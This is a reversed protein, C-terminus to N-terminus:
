ERKNNRKRIEELIGSGKWEEKQRAADNCDRGNRGKKGIEEMWGFALRTGGFLIM